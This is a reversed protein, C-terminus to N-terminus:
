EYIESEALSKLSETSKFELLEQLIEALAFSTASSVFFLGQWNMNGRLLNLASGMMEGQGGAFNVLVEMM